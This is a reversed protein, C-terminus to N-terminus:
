NGYEVFMVQTYKESAHDAYVTAEEGAKLGALRVRYTIGGVYVDGQVSKYHLLIDRNIDQDTINKVRIGKDTVSIVLDNEMLTPEAEFFSAFVCESKFSEINQPAAKRDVEYARLSAGAPLTSIQFLYEEGNVTLKIQAIRLTQNSSNKVTICFMDPLVTNKGDEPFVGAASVMETVSLGLGLDVTNPIVPSPDRPAETVTEENPAPPRQEAWLLVTLGCLLLLPVGVCLLIPWLRGRQGKNIM